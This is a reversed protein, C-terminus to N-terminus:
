TANHVGELNIISQREVDSYMKRDSPGGGM